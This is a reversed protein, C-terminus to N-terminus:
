RAEQPSSDFPDAPDHKASMGDADAREQGGVPAPNADSPKKIMATFEAKKDTALLVGEMDNASGVEVGGWAVGFVHIILVDRVLDVGEVGEGVVDREFAGSFNHDAEAGSGM